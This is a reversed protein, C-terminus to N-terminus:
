QNRLERRKLWAKYSENLKEAKLRIDGDDSARTVDGLALGTEERFATAAADWIPDRFKKGVRPDSIIVHEVADLYEVGTKYESGSEIPPLIFGYREDHKKFRDARTEIFPISFRVLGILVLVVILRYARNNMIKALPSEIDKGDKLTNMM